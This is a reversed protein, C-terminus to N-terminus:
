KLNREWMAVIRTWCEEAANFYGHRAIRRARNRLEERMGSADMYLIIGPFAGPGDPCVAFCPITGNRSTVSVDREIM